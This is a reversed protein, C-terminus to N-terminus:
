GIGVVQGAADAVIGIIDIIDAVLHMLIGAFAIVRNMGRNGDGLEDSIDFVVDIGTGGVPAEGTIVGIVPNGAATALVIEEALAAIVGNITTETGVRHGAAG